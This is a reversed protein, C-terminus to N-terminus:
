AALLFVMIIQSRDHVLPLLNEGSNSCSGQTKEDAGLGALGPTATM